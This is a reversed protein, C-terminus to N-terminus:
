GADSCARADHRHRQNTIPRDNGNFADSLIRDTTRHLIGPYVFVYHLAAVTLASLNHARDRQQFSSRFWGVRVNFFRHTSIKAAAGGINANTFRDLARRLLQLLPASCSFSIQSHDASSDARNGEHKPQQPPRVKPKATDRDARMLAPLFDLESASLKDAPHM